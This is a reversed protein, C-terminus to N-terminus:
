GKRVLDEIEQIHGEIDIGISTLADDYYLINKELIDLSARINQIEVILLRKDTPNVKLAM